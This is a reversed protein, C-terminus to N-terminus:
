GHTAPMFPMGGLYHAYRGPRQALGRDPTPWAETTRADLSLHARGPGESRIAQAAATRSLAAARQVHEWTQNPSGNLVRDNKPLHGSAM